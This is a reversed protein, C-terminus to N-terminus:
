IPIYKKISSNDILYFRVGTNIGLKYLVQKVNQLYSSCFIISIGCSVSLERPTNISKNAIGLRKLYTAFQISKNRNNFVAIVNNCM